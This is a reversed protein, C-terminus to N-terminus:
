GKASFYDAITKAMAKSIGDVAQLDSPGAKAVAKANDFNKLSSAFGLTARTHHTEGM